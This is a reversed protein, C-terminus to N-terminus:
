DSSKKEEEIMEHPGFAVNPFLQRYVAILNPSQHKWALKDNVRARAKEGLCKLQERDDALAIISEALARPNDGQAYVIANGGSERTEPLDFAIVAKGLIMYDMLKNMTSHDNLGGPPDPQVGIDIASLTAVVDTWPIRGTMVVNDEVGLDSRLAVLSDFSDGSGILVFAIDSRGFENKIIAASRLLYDVGDQPNMNGLYGVVTPALSRIKEDPPTDPFDDPDPGNRVVTVENDNKGGRAIAVQRYSENTSIVHSAMFFSMREMFRAVSLMVKRESGFREAFLEPVLDHHDFVFRKGFLRFPAAVLWLLDPPNAAHIVSFGERASVMLSLTFQSVLSVFYEGIHALLGEGLGPKRYRYICIGDVVSRFPETGANPCIVTVDAGAQRLCLAERRVRNDYLYPGDEILFLVSAKQEKM